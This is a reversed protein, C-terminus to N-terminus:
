RLWDPGDYLLLGVRYGKIEIIKVTNLLKTNLNERVKVTLPFGDKMGSVGKLRNVDVYASSSM